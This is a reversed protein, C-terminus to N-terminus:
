RVSVDASAFDVGGRSDRLVIWFHVVGPDAPATWTNSTDTAPDSEDRGTRDHAFQGASAFWSVRMAERHDILSQSPIDFVPFVEVADPPWAADITITAGRDIETPLALPMLTPNKNAVYRMRYEIALDVPANALNCTIRELGYTVGDSLQVLLPQYYGGTIDPDRPRLPPQGEMSPPVDPGFRSCADSPTPATISPASNTIPALADQGLCADAVVNNETLPKPAICFGWAADPVTITGDPSAVLLTYTVMEGPKSEAPEGRVALVEMQTVLSASAGLEPRCAGLLL